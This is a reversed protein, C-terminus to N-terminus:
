NASSIGVFNRDDVEFGALVSLRLFHRSKLKLNICSAILLQSTFIGVQDFDMIQLHAMDMPFLDLLGHDLLRELPYDFRPLLDAVYIERFVM